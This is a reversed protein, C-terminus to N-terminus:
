KSTQETKICCFRTTIDYIRKSTNTSKVNHSLQVGVATQSNGSYDM